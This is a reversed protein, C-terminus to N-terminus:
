NLSVIIVPFLSRGPTYNEVRNFKMRMSTDILENAYDDERIQKWIDQPEPNLVEQTVHLPQIPHILFGDYYGKNGEVRLYGIRNNDRSACKFYKTMM